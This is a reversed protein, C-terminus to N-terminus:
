SVEERGPTSERQERLKTKYYGVVMHARDETLESAFVAQEVPDGPYAFDGLLKRFQERIGPGAHSTGNEYNRIQRAGLGVAAALAAQTKFETSARRAAAM